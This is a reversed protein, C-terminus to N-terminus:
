LPLEMQVSDGTDETDKENSTKKESKVKRKESKVKRKEKKVEGKENKIKLKENKTKGKENKMKREGDESKLGGIESMREGNEMRLGGDETKQGGVESMEQPPEEIQIPELFEIKKVAHLSIRKGRAKFGKIGIFEHVTIEEKEAGRTKVKMDFAVDIRPHKDGTLLVLRNKEEEGIFDMKRDTVEIIFRKVYFLKTKTDEYVATFVKEPDYKEILIMDEDFHTSLDFSTLRYHGSQMITVIRDTGSFEGLLIGREETNLRKVTDDYWILRSGLTSVGEQRQEIKRVSYRTLINGM